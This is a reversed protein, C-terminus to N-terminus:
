LPPRRLPPRRAQLSRRHDHRRRRAGPSSTPSRNLM